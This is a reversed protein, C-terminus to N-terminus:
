KPFLFRTSVFTVLFMPLLYPSQGIYCEAIEITSLFLPVRLMEFPNRCIIFTVSVNYHLASTKWRYGM